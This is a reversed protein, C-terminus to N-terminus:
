TAEKLRVSFCSYTTNHLYLPFMRNGTMSVQAILGLKENRIRCVGDKILFGYGKEQLQGVNLLNTKLEPVFLVNSITQTSSGKTQMSVRGKGM